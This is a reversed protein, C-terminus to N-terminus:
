NKKITNQKMMNKYNNFLQLVNKVYNRTEPNDAIRGGLLASKETSHSGGNYGSIARILDGETYTLLAAFFKTCCPINKEPESMEKFDCKMLEATQPMIQMLGKAGVPSVANPNGGSEQHIIAMILGPHITYRKNKVYYPYKKVATQIPARYTTHILDYTTPAATLYLAFLAATFM